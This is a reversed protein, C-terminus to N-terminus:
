ETDTELRCSFAGDKIEVVAYGSHGFRGAALGVKFIVLAIGSSGTYRYVVLYNVAYRGFLALQAGADKAAGALATLDRKVGYIHGHTMFVRVADFELTLSQPVTPAYDCNGPVYYFDPEQCAFSLEEADTLHDGLHLVADPREKEIADYAFGLSRHTDSLVLLKM